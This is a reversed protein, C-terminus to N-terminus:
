ATSGVSAAQWSLGGPDSDARPTAWRGLPAVVVGVLVLLGAAVALPNAHILQEVLSHGGPLGIFPSLASLLILVRRLNGTAVPALLIVGWTLYWPQVVPGLVVFLLMSLGLARLYGIRESHILFYVAAGGAILLGIVRTVSLVGGMPLAVGVLHALQSLLAAIMTSPALWSRVTGPTALNAVWGVGLGSVASLAVMVASAIIASTVLPRVRHRWPVGPGMWGWGIYIIGIAAPVKIAAALACVAVGWVPHQRKALAIGALLLGVMIADNHASGVLTLLVLPNLVALVYIQGPDRGHLRALQPIAWAILVVGVVSFVRLLAVTGVANHLSVNALFGDIMLFLPGYPAPTNGWLHDVPSVYPGAGLTYPGYLYPNIHHSMMEGQAAYSFVDRSFIPAVVLMPILWLALTWGLYRIPVGPRRALTRMLGIWVRMFLIVGGYVAVLGILMYRQTAGPSTPEGFFWTGPMELKFPSSTLSAGAAVSVLALFGLIVPRRLVRWDDTEEPQVRNALLGSPALHMKAADFQMSLRATVASAAAAGEAAKAGLRRLRGRAASETEDHRPGLEAEDHAM